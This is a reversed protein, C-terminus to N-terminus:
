SRSEDFPYKRESAKRKKPLPPEESVPTPTWVEIDPKSPEPKTLAERRNHQPPHKKTSAKSATAKKSPKKKAAM